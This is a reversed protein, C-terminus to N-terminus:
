NTLNKINEWNNYFNMYTLDTHSNNLIFIFNEREDLGNSDSLYANIIGNIIEDVTDTKNIHEVAQSGMLNVEGNAIKVGGLHDVLVELQQETLSLFKFDKDSYQELALILGSAGDKKYHESIKASEGASFVTKDVFSSVGVQMSQFNFNLESFYYKEGIELVTFVTKMQSETVVNQAKETDPEDTVILEKILFSAGVGLFLVFCVFFAVFFATLQRVFSRSNVPKKSRM